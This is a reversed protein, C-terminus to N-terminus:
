EPPRSVGPPPLMRSQLPFRQGDSAALCVRAVREGPFRLCITQGSHLLRPGMLLSIWKVGGWPEPFLFTSINMTLCSADGFFRVMGSDATGKVPSLEFCSRSPKKRNPQNPKKLCSGKFLGYGEPWLSINLWSSSKESRAPVSQQQFHNSQLFLFISMVRCLQNQLLTPSPKLEPVLLCTEADGSLWHWCFRWSVEALLVSISSLHQQWWNWPHPWTCLSMEAQNGADVKFITGM